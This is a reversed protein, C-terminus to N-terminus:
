PANGCRMDKYALLTLNIAGLRVAVIVFLCAYGLSPICHRKSM